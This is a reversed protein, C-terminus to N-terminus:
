KVEKKRSMIEKIRQEILEFAQMVDWDQDFYGGDRPLFRMSLDFSSCCVLYLKVM